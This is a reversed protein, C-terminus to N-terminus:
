DQRSQLIYDGFSIMIMLRQVQYSQKQDHSLDYIYGGGSYTAMAGSTIFGNLSDSTNYFFGEDPEM